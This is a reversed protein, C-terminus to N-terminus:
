ELEIAMEPILKKLENKVYSAVDKGTSLLLAEEAIERAQDM